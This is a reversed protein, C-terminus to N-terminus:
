PPLVMKTNVMLYSFLFSPHKKLLIKREEEGLHSKIGEAGAFVFITRKIQNEAALFFLFNMLNRKKYHEILEPLNSGQSHVWNTVLQKKLPTLNSIHKGKFKRDGFYVEWHKLFNQTGNQVTPTHIYGNIAGRLWTASDVSFWPFENVLSLTTVGFGHFKRLPVNDPFLLPKVVSNMWQKRQEPTKDNAPSIGIYSCLKMMKVLWNPDEGQHFVPMLKENPIGKKLMYKYNLWSQKAADKRDQFTLKKNPEGPIVDIAVATDIIDIHEKIFLIYKDIDLPTKRTWASFAGSDLIIRSKRKNRKM